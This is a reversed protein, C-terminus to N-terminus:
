KFINGMLSYYSISLSVEMYNWNESMWFTMFYVKELSQCKLKRWENLLICKQVKCERQFVFLIKNHHLSEVCYHCIESLLESKEFVMWYLIKDSWFNPDLLKLDNYIDM